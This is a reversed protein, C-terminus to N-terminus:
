WAYVDDVDDDGNWDGDGPAEEDLFDAETVQTERPRLNDIRVDVVECMGQIVETAKVKMKSQALPTDSSSEDESQAHTPLSPLLDKGAWKKLSAIERAARASRSLDRASPADSKFDEMDSNEPSEAYTTVQRIGARASRRSPLPQGEGAKSKNKRKSPKKGTETEENVITPNSSLASESNTGTSSRASRRMTTSPEQIQVEHKTPLSRDLFSEDQKRLSTLQQPPSSVRKFVRDLSGLWKDRFSARDRWGINLIAQLTLKRLDPLDAASDLLSQFFMEAAETQWQRLQTLEITRLTSPWVPVQGPLILDKYLPESDRYSSHLQYYILNMRLVQLKPCAPGLIPLFSLSLSQNHNLTLCRLQNGHSLLFDAIEEAKVNWCNILELNRLNKPLLPLLTPNVMTSSEFILHELNKLVSLSDALFKEHNPDEENAKVYPVQYNVFAIKRLGEFSPKLHIDRIKEVSFTKGAMRSSWRWSRLKCVSTKDGQEPDAGPDVYELADFLDEPYHWKLNVDLDRYPAMDKVHYFELEALRPLSRILGHLDLHGSGALSYAAVQHVEIHLSEVKQRYKFALHRPDAQLIEVLKHAKDMPVLPPTNYLVTFAPEAFDRCLRAVKLLWSGSPNPVFSHPDYLPYTAYEMIQILIQYPLSQWPPIVGSTQINSSLSLSSFFSFTLLREHRRYSVRRLKTHSIPKPGTSRAKKSPRTHALQGDPDANSRYRKKSPSQLASRTQPKTPKRSRTFSSTNLDVSRSSDSPFDEDADIETDSPPEAYSFAPQARTARPPARLSRRSRSPPSPAM